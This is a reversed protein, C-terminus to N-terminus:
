SNFLKIYDVVLKEISDKVLSMADRPDSVKASVQRLTKLFENRIQTDINFKVVGLEKAKLIDKRSLGSAGHMVLPVTTVKYIEELLKLDLSEGKPAGHDNGVSVALSDVGTKRIFDEVLGPDTKESKGSKKGGELRAICGIEGEIQVGYKHAYNAAKKTIAVNAEWDLLSGDIMVSSYGIDICKKLIGFDKAHDLHLAIDLNNEHIENKVIDFLQELGAYEIASPSTQIIVPVGTKMSASCIAQSIELDSTNFAGIAKHSEFLRKYHNKLNMFM